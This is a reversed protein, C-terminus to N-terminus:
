FDLLQFLVLLKPAGSVTGVPLTASLADWCTLNDLLEGTVTSSIHVAHSYREVTMLKEVNVSGPKMVKGVDNRGLDVEVSMIHEACCRRWSNTRM